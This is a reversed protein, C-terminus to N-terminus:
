EFNIKDIEKMLRDTEYLAVIIKQYHQIDETTLQREKRDKLWKQAPQYGGIYFKWALEPVNDFYQTKNIWVKEEAYTIKVIKNDGKVPFSTIFKNVVKSELLHIERLEGGLKVLEWFTAEDKPYPVRPFDIKLFEKYKDRYTPSHLVAYIYDLIDIPAFTNKKPEKEPIFNFGIKKTIEKLIDPNLNAERSTNGFITHQEDTNPYIYLPFVYSTEKTQLSISCREAIINSIFIHQFNFTSQFKSIILAVNKKNLLNQMIEYKPRWLIGQSLDSYIINRNDFPRYCIKSITYNNQRIDRQVQNIKEIGQNYIDSLKSASYTKFNEITKLLTSKSTNIVLQDKATEVGSSYNQFLDNTKFGKIYEKENSFDKPVFFYYPQKYDLKNWKIIDNSKVLIQYKIERTGFLDFHKVEALVDNQKKITKVFLNISVGQMIDFVNQDTSGDLATEKKKSSGHLDLVYINDFTVLLNKRMQRHTVGDIFSNNSIYALIGFGTKEINYEGFRIFKIYDDDLNIKRENLNKKYDDILNGIWTKDGKFDKSDNSSSVAYPPNGIIVAFPTKRKIENVTLSEKALGEFMDSLKKNALNTPEVLSNTLYINFKIKNIGTFSLEGLRRSIETLKLTLKIDAIVYPAMMLEFGYLRPMLSTVVYENWKDQIEKPTFNQNKWKSTVTTAIVEIVEVLFTGTGVAPDLIIVFPKDPTTGSPIESVKGMKKMEGWTVTSALGDELGFDNQLTEHVSRVIFSVVSQPTYFVGREMKKNRDYEKLFLEYFHLVPDERQTKNGFDNLVADVHTNPSNLLDVVDLVGAEDFDIKDNKGGYKLFMGLTEKLFPNSVLDTLNETLVLTPRSVKAALLGYTITQAYMDAFDDKSLDHILATRFAKLLQTFVGSESELRLISNVRKRIRTALHAMEIALAQSTSIVERHRLVFASSWNERWNEIRESSDPWKLKEKLTRHADDLHLITDQDDWGLVKLTPLEGSDSNESFNAFSISRENQIGYSSIFLLDNLYWTKRDGSKASARKKIVLSRLIRRLVVVPLNRPEFNIFFIGWPQGSILPRLQKIEKIKVASKEDLGLEEPNYDYTVDDFNDAEIPWNLEDRLYIILAPFTKISRLVKLDDM